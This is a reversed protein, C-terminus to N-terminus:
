AKEQKVDQEEVEAFRDRTDLQFDSCLTHNPISAEPCWTRYYCRQHNCDSKVKARESKIKEEDYEM